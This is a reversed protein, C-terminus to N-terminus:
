MKFFSAYNNLSRYTCRTSCQHFKGPIDMRLLLIVTWRFCGLCSFLWVMRCNRERDAEEREKHSKEVQTNDTELTFSFQRGNKRGSTQIERLLKPKKIRNNPQLKSVGV